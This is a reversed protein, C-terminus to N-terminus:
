SCSICLVLLKNGLPFYDLRLRTRNIIYFSICLSLRLLYNMAQQVSSYMEARGDGGGGGRGGGGDKRSNWERGGGMEEGMERGGGKQEGMM